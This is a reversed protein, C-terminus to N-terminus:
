RMRHKRLERDAERKRIVDRKDHKARGRAVGIELKAFGSKFYLTLPVVTLGKERTQTSIKEIERRKLLLKRARKPEQLATPTHSYPQVDMNIVWLETGRMKAYSEQISVHGERISKVEPGELVLGAEYKDLIEYNFYAKRNKQVIKISEGDNKAPSM